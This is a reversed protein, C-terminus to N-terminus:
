EGFQPDPLELGRELHASAWSLVELYRQRYNDHHGILEQLNYHGSLGVRGGRELRVIDSGRVENWRRDLNFRNLANRPFVLLL